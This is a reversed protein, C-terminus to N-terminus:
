ILIFVSGLSSLVLTPFVNYFRTALSEEVHVDNKGWEEAMEVARDYDPWPRVGPEVRSDPDSDEM